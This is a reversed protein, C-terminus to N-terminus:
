VTGGKNELTDHVLVVRYGFGGKRLRKDRGAAKVEGLSIEEIDMMETMIDSLDALEKIMEERSTSTAVEAAEEMIKMRLLLKFETTSEAFRTSNPLLGPSFDRILKM